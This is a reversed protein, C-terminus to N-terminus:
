GARPKLYEFYKRAVDRADMLPDLSPMVTVWGDFGSERMLRMYADMDTSDAEGPLAHVWDRGGLAIATRGKPLKEALGYSQVNVLWTWPKLRRIAGAVDSDPPIVFQMHSADMIIGINPHAVERLFSEARDVTDTLTNVHLQTCVKIGRASALDALERMPGHDEKKFPICKLFKGGLRKLADLVRIADARSAEDKPVGACPGFVVEIRHRKLAQAIADMQEPPPILPYRLEIGAYGLEAAVAIHEACTIKYGQPSEWFRSSLALKMFAIAHELAAGSAICNRPPVHLM